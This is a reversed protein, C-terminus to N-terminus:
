PIQAEGTMGSGSPVDLLVGRALERFIEQYACFNEYIGQAERRVGEDQIGSIIRVVRANVDPDGVIKRSLALSTGMDLEGRVFKNLLPDTIKKTIEM